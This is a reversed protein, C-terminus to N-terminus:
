EIFVNGHVMVWDGVVDRRYLHQNKSALKPFDPVHDRETTKVQEKYYGTKVYVINELIENHIDHLEKGTYLWVIFGESKLARVFQLLGEQHMPEGGMLAIRNTNYRMRYDNIETIVDAMLVEDLPHRDWLEPNHCGQCHNKLFCGSFFIDISVGDTSNFSPCEIKRVYMLTM